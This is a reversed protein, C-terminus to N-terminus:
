EFYVIKFDYVNTAPLPSYGTAISINNGSTSVSNWYIYTSSSSLVLEIMNGLSAQAPLALIIQSDTYKTPSFIWNTGSVASLVAKGTTKSNSIVDYTIKSDNKSLDMRSKLIYVVEKLKGAVMLERLKSYMTYLNTNTYEEVIVKESGGGSSAVNVTVSSYGDANDDIANYTGNETIEKTILNVEEATVAVEASAYNTVDYTGNEIINLTGTPTIGGKFTGTKGLITVGEKINEPQINTDIASTVASVNVKNFVSNESPTVVQANTTPTVNAIEEPKYYDSPNVAKVNVQTLKYGSDATVVQESTTPNINKTQNPLKKEMQNILNPMNRFEVNSTSIGANNINAKFSQKVGDLEELNQELDAM